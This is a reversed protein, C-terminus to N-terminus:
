RGPSTKPSSDPSGVPERRFGNDIGGHAQHLAAAELLRRPDINLDRALEPGHRGAVEPVGFVVHQKESALLAM